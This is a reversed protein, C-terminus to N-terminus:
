HLGHLCLDYSGHRVVTFKKFADSWLFPKLTCLLGHCGFDLTV